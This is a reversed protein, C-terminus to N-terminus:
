QTCPQGHHCTKGQLDNHRQLAMEPLLLLCSSLRPRPRMMLWPLHVPLLLELYLSFLAEM